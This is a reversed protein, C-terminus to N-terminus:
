MAHFYLVKIDCSKEDKKIQHKVGAPAIMTMGPYIEHEEDGFLAKGTGELVYFGEQDEHVGGKNYETNDYVSIGIKCGNVCGNREDLIVGGSELQDNSDAFYTMTEGKRSRDM